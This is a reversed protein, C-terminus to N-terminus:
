AVAVAGSLPQGAFLRDLGEILSRAPRDTFLGQSAAHSGRLFVYVAGGVHRDYDYGPLRARLQRHLALLYLAYQLDYRHHLMASRMAEPTYAGDDPGLWNSKWDLVYYRGAHEFVLDIFGKLMGNLRSALVAPRAQGALCHTQVLRDLSITDVARSEIWFEMEVQIQHPTLDQLALMSPDGAADDPWTSRWPRTLVEALWGDLADIWDALGRLQCRRALMDRRLRASRSAAAYGRWRAGQGDLWEQVAAWELIGHLFTGYRSGRPFAHLRPGALHWAPSSPTPPALTAAVGAEPRQPPMPATPATEELATEQAATESSYAAPRFSEREALADIAALRLASYSAIWWQEFRGHAPARAAQLAEPAEPALREPTPAPAQVIAIDPCDGALVDLAEWVAAPTTLPEGGSLVHGIASRELQPARSNGSKLPAIGLWVAHQARTVAVYLLRMDESLREDDAREWATEFVQRGAIELYRRAVGDGDPRRYPVAWTKGDVARWSCIFPLLVLPYELGKAKHITVVQILEADSELRVIHEEGRQGLHEALHRILAQEGDLETAAQQLWEALHLLNTLMREGADRAVLRAPLDADHMLRHLMALVGQRQWIERYHRFREIQAEWALENEQLAALEVLPVGLTNTGLAAHVLGEDTPAACARLWQLLDRAEETELVSDRDSLYVSNLRRATLAARMAAAETGSRVLIAIHKPRLPAFSGSTAFGTKGARAQRLWRVVESAAVAAMRERYDGLGVAADGNDLRWCTIASAPQGDIVLRERRGSASVAIYPIPNEEEANTRFRFAGRPHREAHGFLRNGAAVMADTSRYNRDLSYHRGTTARRAALYAHIDAGRFGYIAQKPDGIMILATREASASDAYVRSFIRYQIPDTDQFEDILAVPFQRRITAALAEARQRGDATAESPTLVADLDRLLDDFGMEARVRLRRPLEREVWAAAHALLCAELPPGSAAREGALATKAQQWEAIATFAAHSPERQDATKKFSFAGAAFSALQSPAAGGESWAGLAVLVGAFRAESASGHKTGNLDARRSWLLAEIDARDDRWRARARDELAAIAAEREREGRRRALPEDLRTCCLPEGQYSFGTERRTLWTELKAQLAAPSAVVEQIAAADATGLGYGHVRWYDRLIEAILDAQDTVLERQFLGRTFFAHEHLMRQCWGHITAIMAQDMWEAAQRLRRACAPREEPVYAARLALLPDDGVDPEGGAAPEAPREFLEAAEVLRARIRERLEQTAAETFTVVLIEPPMLPREFAAGESGHGLVLRAYLLALTFTKGTGASAEILRSGHLPLSLPSLPRPQDTAATM